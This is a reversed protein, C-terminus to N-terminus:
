KIIFYFKIGILTYECGYDAKHLELISQAIALGLGTSNDDRKRSADGRYFADWINKLNTNNSQSSENEVSVCIGKKAEKVVAVIKKGPNTYKIANSIFNSIVIKILERDCEVPKCNNFDIILNINKDEILQKNSEIVESVLEDLMCEEKKLKYNGSKLKAFDLMSIIMSNMRNTEDSINNLYFENKDSNINENICDCNSKIIALPTKLEHAIANTLNTRADDLAKQKKYFIWIAISIILASLEMIILITVGTIIFQSSTLTEYSLDCAIAYSLFYKHDSNEEEVNFFYSYNYKGVSSESSPAYNQPKFYNDISEKTSDEFVEELEQPNKYNHHPNLGNFKTSLQIGNKGDKYKVTAKKSSIKITFKDGSYQDSSKYGEFYITTPIFKSDKFYGDIEPCYLGVYKSKFDNLQDITIWKDLYVVYETKSYNNSKICLLNGFEALVKRNTDYCKAIINVDFGDSHDIPLNGGCALANALDEMLMDPTYNEGKLEHFNKTGEIWNDIANCYNSFIYENEHKYINYTISIIILFLILMCIEVSLFIRRKVKKMDNM